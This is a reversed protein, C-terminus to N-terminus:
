FPLKEPSNKQLRKMTVTGPIGKIRMRKGDLYTDTAIMTVVTRTKYSPSKTETTSVNLAIGGSPWWQFNCKRSMDGAKSCESTGPKGHENGISELIEAERLTTFSQDYRMRYAKNHGNIKVFWVVYQAGEFIFSAASEGRGLKVLDLNPHKSRVMEPSMGLSVGGMNFTQKVEDKLFFIKRWDIQNGVSTEFVVFAALALMATLCFLFLTKISNNDSKRRGRNGIRRDISKRRGGRRRESQRAQTMVAM